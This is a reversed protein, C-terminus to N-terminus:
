ADEHRLVDVGNGCYIDLESAVEVARRADCGCRLAAMAYDRGSGIAVQRDELPIPHPNREYLLMPGHKPVVLVTAHENDGLRPYNALDRDTNLWAICARVFSSEGAGGALSGDLLRHVKRTTMRGGNSQALKDAALMKGDYVVVTM